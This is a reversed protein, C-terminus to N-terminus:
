LRRCRFARGVDLNAAARCIRHRFRHPWIRFHGGEAYLLVQIAEGIPAVPLGFMDAGTAFLEDLRVFLWVADARAVLSSRVDRQTRDVRRESDGYLPGAETPATDALAIIRDCDAGSFADAIALYYRSM